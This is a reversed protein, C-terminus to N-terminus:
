PPRRNEAHHHGCRTCVLHERLEGGEARKCFGNDFWAGSCGTTRHEEAVIRRMRGINQRLLTGQLDHIPTDRCDEDGINM